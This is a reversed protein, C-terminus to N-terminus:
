KSGNTVTAAHAIAEIRLQEMDRTGACQSREHLDREVADYPEYSLKDVVLQEIRQVHEIAELYRTWLAEDYLAGTKCQRRM